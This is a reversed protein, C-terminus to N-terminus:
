YLLRFKPLSLRSKLFLGLEPLLLWPKLFLGLKPLFWSLPGKPFVPGAKPLLRFLKPLSEFSGLCLRPLAMSARNPTGCIGCNPIPSRPPGLRPLKSPGEGMPGMCARRPTGRTAWPRCLAGNSPLSARSPRHGEARSPPAMAGWTGGRMPWGAKRSPCGPQTMCRPFM